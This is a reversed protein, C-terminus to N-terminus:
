RSQVAHVTGSGGTTAGTYPEPAPLAALARHHLFVSVNQTAHAIMIGWLSETLAYVTGLALGACMAFFAWRLSAAHAIGFCLAAAIVAGVIGLLPTLVWILFGRFVLEEVVAQLAGLYPPFRRLELPTRGYTKIINEHWARRCDDCTRIHRVDNWCYVAIGLSWAVGVVLTILAPLSTPLGLGLVEPPRQHWVWVAAISLPVLTSEAILICRGVRNLAAMIARYAGIRQWIRQGFRHGGLCVSSAVLGLVTVAAIAHDGSTPTYGTAM